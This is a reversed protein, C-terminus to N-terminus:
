LTTGTIGDSALTWTSGFNLSVYIGSGSAAYILGDKYSGLSWVTESRAMGNDPAPPKWTAGGDSSKYVGGSAVGALMQGPVVGTFIAEVPQNLKKPNKPDDEPGQAVPQFAGGGESKFLGVGTGAYVTSVGSTYLARVNMAGPVTNLGSSFSSWTLGNNVSRYVGNGETAAYMTTPVTATAYERVWGAAQLGPLGLWDARAPAAGATLVAFVALLIPLLRHRM